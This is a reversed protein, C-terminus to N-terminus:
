ISLFPVINYKEKFLYLKLKNNHIIILIIVPSLLFVALKVWFKVFMWM